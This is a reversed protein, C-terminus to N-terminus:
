EEKEDDDGGIQEPIPGIVDDYPLPVKLHSGRVLGEHYTKEYLERTCKACRSVTIRVVGKDNYPDSCLELPTGCICKIVIEM